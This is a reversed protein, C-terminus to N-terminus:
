YKSPHSDTSLYAMETYIWGVDLNVRGERGGCYTFRTGAQRSSILSPRTWRNRAAPLIGYPLLRETAKCDTRM